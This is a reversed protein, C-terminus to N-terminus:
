TKLILTVKKHSLKYIINPISYNAMFFSLKSL